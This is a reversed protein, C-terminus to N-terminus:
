VAKAQAAKQGAKYFKKAAEIIAAEREEATRRGSYVTVHAYGLEYEGLVQPKFEQNRTGTM